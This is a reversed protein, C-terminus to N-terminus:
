TSPLSSRTHDPYPAGRAEGWLLWGPTCVVRPKVGAAAARPTSKMGPTSALKNTAPFPWALRQVKQNRPPGMHQVTQQWPEIVACRPM